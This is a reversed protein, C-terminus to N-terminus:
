SLNHLLKQFFIMETKSFPWHWNLKNPSVNEPLKKSMGNWQILLIYRERRWITSSVFLNKISTNKAEVQNEMGSSTIEKIEKFLNQIYRILITLKM